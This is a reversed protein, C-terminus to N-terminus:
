VKEQRELQEECTWQAIIRIANKTKAAAENVAFAVVTTAIEKLLDFVLISISEITHGPTVLVELRMGPLDLSDGM